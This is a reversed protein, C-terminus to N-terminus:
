SDWSHSVGACGRSKKIPEMVGGYSRSEGHRRGREHAKGEFPLHSGRIAKRGRLPQNQPQFMYDQTCCWGRRSTLPLLRFHCWPRREKVDLLLSLVSVVAIRTKKKKPDVWRNVKMLLPHPNPSHYEFTARWSSMVRFLLLVDQFMTEEESNRFWSEHSIM